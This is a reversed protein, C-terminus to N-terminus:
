LIVKKDNEGVPEEKSHSVHNGNRSPLSDLEAVEEAAWQAFTDDIQEDVDVDFGATMPMALADGLEKSEITVTEMDAAIDDINGLDVNNLEDKMVDNGDKMISAVQVTTVTTEVNIAHQGLNQITGYLQQARGKLRNVEALCAKSEPLKRQKYLEKAKIEKESIEQMIQMRKLKLNRLQRETRELTDSMNDHRENQQRKEKVETSTFWSKVWASM